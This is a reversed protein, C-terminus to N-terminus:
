IIDEGTIADYMHIGDLTSVISGDRYSKIQVKVICDSGIEQKIQAWCEKEDKALMLIIKRKYMEEQEPTARNKLLLQANEERADVELASPLAVTGHENSWDLIERHYMHRAIEQIETTASCLLDHLVARSGPSMETKSIRQLTNIFTAEEFGDLRDKFMERMRDRFYERAHTAGGGNGIREAERLMLMIERGMEHIGIAKGLYGCEFELEVTVSDCSMLIRKMQDTRALASLLKITGSEFNRARSDVCTVRKRKSTHTVLDDFYDAELRHLRLAELHNAVVPSSGLKMSAIWDEMPIRQEGNCVYYRCDRLDHFVVPMYTKFPRGKAESKLYPVEGEDEVVWYGAKQWQKITFSRMEEMHRVKQEPSTERKSDKTGFDTVYWIYPVHKGEHALHKVMYVSAEFAGTNKRHDDERINIAVGFARGHQVGNEVSSGHSMIEFSFDESSGNVLMIGPVQGKSTNQTINRVDDYIKEKHHNIATVSPVQLRDAELHYSYQLKRYLFQDNYYANFDPLCAKRRDELQRALAEDMDGKPLGFTKGTPAVTMVFVKPKQAPKFEHMM